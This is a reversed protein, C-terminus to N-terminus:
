VSCTTCEEFALNKTRTYYLSKLGLHHAYLYYRVLERTSTESDVYLTTSIGQDIHPQVVAVLELVKMMDMRYASKYFFINEECLYPMPYYTTVNGYTRREVLDVIPLISATANQVYGISQTPAIALRYAHFMGNQKVLQALKKWDEPTPLPM